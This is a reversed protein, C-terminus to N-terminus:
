NVARRAKQLWFLMRILQIGLYPSLILVWAFPNGGLLADAIAEYYGSLGAEYDGILQQGVMFIIAPFVILGFAVLGLAILSEKMLRPPKM